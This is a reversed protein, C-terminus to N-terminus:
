GRPHVPPASGPVKPGPVLLGGEDFTPPVAVCQVEDSYTIRGPSTTRLEMWGVGYRDLLDLYARTMDLLDVSSSRFWARAGPHLVPDYCDPEVTTPDTYMANARDNAARHWAADEPSLGGSRALGNALAFVGPFRGSRNPAVSQFRVYVTVRLLNAFPGAGSLRM